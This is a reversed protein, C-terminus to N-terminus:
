AKDDPSGVPQVAAIRAAVPEARKRPRYEKLCKERRAILQADTCSPGFISACGGDLRADCWGCGYRKLRRRQLPSLSLYHEHQTSM